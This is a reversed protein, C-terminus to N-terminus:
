LDHELLEISVSSARATSTIIARAFLIYGKIIVTLLNNEKKEDRHKRFSISFRYETNRDLKIIFKGYDITFGHLQNDVNSNEIQEYFVTVCWYVDRM